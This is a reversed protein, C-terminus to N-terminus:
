GLGIGVSCNEITCGVFVNTRINSYDPTLDLLSGDPAYTRVSVDLEAPLAQGHKRVDALISGTRKDTLAIRDDSRTVESSQPDGTYINNRRISAIKQGNADYVECDIGVQGSEEHRRVTFLPEGRFAILTPVNIYTNGGLKIKFEHEKMWM